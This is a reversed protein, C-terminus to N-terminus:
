PSKVPLVQRLPYPLQRQRWLVVGLAGALALITAVLGYFVAVVQSLSDRQVWVGLFSELGPDSSDAKDSIKVEDLAVAIKDYSLGAVSNVVLQKVRPELNKNPMDARYRILVAAVPSTPQQRLPDNEPLDLQVRVSLVGDISSITRELEQSQAFIMQAREQAHTPVLGDMKFVEGLTKFDKKPLGNEDLIRMADAFAREQVVVTMHGNKDAVREAPIGHRILTAVIDNAAQQDLNNYLDTNCAALMLACLGAAALRFGRTGRRETPAMDM